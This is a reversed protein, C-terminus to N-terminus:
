RRGPQRGTVIQSADITANLNVSSAAAPVALMGILVALLIRGLRKSM